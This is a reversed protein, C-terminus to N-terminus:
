KEIRDSELLRIFKEFEENNQPLIPIDFEDVLGQERIRKWGNLMEDNLSVWMDQGFLVNAKIFDDQLRQITEEMCIGCRILTAYDKKEDEPIDRIDETDQFIRKTIGDKESIDIMGHLPYKKKEIKEEEERTTVGHILRFWESDFSVFDLTVQRPLFASCVNFVELLQNKMDETM